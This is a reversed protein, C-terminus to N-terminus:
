EKLEVKIEKDGRPGGDRSEFVDQRRLTQPLFLTIVM